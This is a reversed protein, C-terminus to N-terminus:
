IKAPQTKGYSDNDARAQKFSLFIQHVEVHNQTFIIDFVTDYLKSLPKPYLCQIRYIFLKNTNVCYIYTYTDPVYKPKM